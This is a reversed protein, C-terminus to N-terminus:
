SGLGEQVDNEMTYVYEDETYEIGGVGGQRKDFSGKSTSRVEDLAMRKGRSTAQVEHVPRRVGDEGVAVDKDALLLAREAKKRLCANSKKLDDVKLRM